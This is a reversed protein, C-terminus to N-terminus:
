LVGKVAIARATINIEGNNDIPLLGYAAKKLEAQHYESLSMLYSSAPGQGGLFPNWYDDFNKFRTAIDLNTTEVKSLGADLFTNKLNDSNCIPFKIGEDAEIRHPKLTAAADWFYRLMEMKGSYDWVYAAIVGGHKVVRKFETMAANIDPFFNLALGSVLVDFDNDNHPIDTASAVILQSKGALREKAKLLFQVSLDIGSLKSPSCYNNINESLVGTGCGVDLWSQLPDADLWKLFVPALLGSWRGMFYEYSDSSSWQIESHGM